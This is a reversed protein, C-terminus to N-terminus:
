QSGRNRNPDTYGTDNDGSAWDGSGTGAANSSLGSTDGWNGGSPTDSSPDIGGGTDVGVDDWDTRDGASPGGQQLDTVDMTTRDDANPDGTGTGVSEAAQIYAKLDDKDKKERAVDNTRTTLEDIDGDSNGRDGGMSADHDRMKRSDLDRRYVAM